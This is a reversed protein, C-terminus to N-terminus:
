SEHMLRMATRKHVRPVTEGVDFFLTDQRNLKRGSARPSEQLMSETRALRSDADHYLTEARQLSDPRAVEASATSQRDTQRGGSGATSQNAADDDDSSSSSDEEDASTLEPSTAEATGGPYPAQLIATM